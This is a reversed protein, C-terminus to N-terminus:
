ATKELKLTHIVVPEASATDYECGALVGARAIDEASDLRDYCAHLAGLAYRWGSGAAWYRDYDFAERYSHVSYIGSANAILAEFRTSEYPDDDDEKPNLYYEDKLLPHLKRFSEFVAERSSLDAPRGEQEEKAMLSAIALHHATSGCIGILSRNGEPGVTLIKKQRGNNSAHLRTSGFTILSDAAMVAVGGKKVVVITTM